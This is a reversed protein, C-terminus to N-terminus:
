SQLFNEKFNILVMNPFKTTYKCAEILISEKSKRLIYIKKIKYMFSEVRDLFRVEMNGRHKVFQERSEMKM